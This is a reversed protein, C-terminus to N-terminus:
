VGKQIFDALGEFPQAPEQEVAHWIILTYRNAPKSMLATEEMTVMISVAQGTDLLSSILEEGAERCLQSAVVQGYKPNIDTDLLMAFADLV